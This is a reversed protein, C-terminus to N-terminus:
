RLTELYAAIADLDAAPLTNAPMRNGPKSAQPDAIWRMLADHTNPLTGAGITRRSGVHTLDPGVHGRAPTGLITHCGSCRGSLFLDRGHRGIGTLPEPAPQRERELWRDFAHEELAIVTFAMHAHQRGCFEACQGQFLGPRDAEIWLATTYGPVLDRKGHLMPVWFSHVVDNSTVMLVVPRGVPIYLENATIVRRSPLLDEYKVDWWFQRGTITITLAQAAHLSAVRQGTRFSAILMAFLILVTAAIAAAVARSLTRETTASDAPAGERASRRARVIAWALMGLVVITVASTTVILFWAHRAIQFAQPGAPDLASQWLRVPM